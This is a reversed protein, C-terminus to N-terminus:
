QVERELMRRIEALDEESTSQLLAAVLRAPSNGYLKALFSATENARYAEEEVLPAYYNLRGLKERKLFGKEELRSLVTQVVQIPRKKGSCSSLRQHIEGTHPTTESKWVALMVELELDPLRPIKQEM